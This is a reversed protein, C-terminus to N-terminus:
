VENTSLLTKDSGAIFSPVFKGPGVCLRINSGLEKAWWSFTSNPIIMYKAESLIFFDYPTSIYDDAEICFTANPMDDTIVLFKELGTLKSLMQKAEKYFESYWTNVDFYDNGRFHIYMWKNPDYKELYMRKEDNEKIKLWELNIYKTHQYYGTLKAINPFPSPSKTKDITMDKFNCNVYSHGLWEDQPIYYNSGLKEAVYRTACYQFLHNGMRGTLQPQVIIM